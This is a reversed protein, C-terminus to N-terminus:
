PILGTGKCFAEDHRRQIDVMNFTTVEIMGQKKLRYPDTIIEMAGWEGILLESWVALIIGHENTGAGLNKAIQNTAEARYGNMEGNRWIANNVTNALEAVQKAKGKVGPTTLYAMTSIDANDLAIETEMDVLKAFSVSGGFAVANIGSAAYIGQPQNSSGTGHLAAKDIALANVQALDNAVISDVDIVAQALLQRSYSTTSQLTKPTLTISDLTLNSESVDSGPNEGVWSASAAGNQRPFSVNGQLGPLVTAGLLMVMAKNRLLEILSGGFETYVTTQGKTSSATDLGARKLMGVNTPILIGGRLQVGPINLNRRLTESVEAEFSSVQKDDRIDADALIARALSYEKAEKKSFEIVPKAPVEAQKAARKEVIAAKFEPITKGQAAFDRALETEGFFEGVEKFEQLHSVEQSREAPTKEENEKAMNEEDDSNARTEEADKSSREELDDASEAERKEEEKEELERDEFDEDDQSYYLERGMGVSIDAPISASTTELIEWKTARYTPIGDTDSELVMDHVLFGFSVGNRIEDIVDQFIEEGYKSRSFKVKGRVESGLTVSDPLLVGVQNDTDHNVLHPCVGNLVRDLIVADKGTDLKLFGFWQEIPNNSAFAFEVTRKEADVNLVREIVSRSALSGKARELSFKGARARDFKQPKLERKIKETADMQTIFFFFRLRM